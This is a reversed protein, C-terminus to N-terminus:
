SLVVSPKDLLLLSVFLLRWFLLFSIRGSFSAQLCKSRRYTPTSFIQPERLLLEGLFSAHV